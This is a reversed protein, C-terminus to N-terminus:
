PCLWTVLSSNGQLEYEREEDGISWVTVYGTVCFRMLLHLPIYTGVMLLERPLELLMVTWTLVHFRM